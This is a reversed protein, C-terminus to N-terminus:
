RETELYRFADDITPCRDMREQCWAVFKTLFRM